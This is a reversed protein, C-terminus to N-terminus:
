CCFDNGELVSYTEGTDDAEEHGSIQFSSSPNLSRFVLERLISNSLRFGHCCILASVRGDIRALILKPSDRAEVRTM